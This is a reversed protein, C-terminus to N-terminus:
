KGTLPLEEMAASMWGRELSQAWTRDFDVGFAVGGPRPSATWDVLHLKFVKTRGNVIMGIDAESPDNPNAAGSSVIVDFPPNLAVLVSAVYLDEGGKCRNGSIVWNPPQLECSVAGLQISMPSWKIQGPLAYVQVIRQQGSATKLAGCFVPTAPGGPVPMTLRGLQVKPRENWFSAYFQDVPGQVHAYPQTASFHLAMPNPPNSCSAVRQQFRYFQYRQSIPIVFQVVVWILLLVAAIGIMWRQYFRQRYWPRNSDPMYSIEAHQTDLDNGKEFSNQNV